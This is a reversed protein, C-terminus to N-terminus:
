GPVTETRTDPRVSYGIHGGWTLLLETLEHRISIRGVYEGDVVMWLETWPM